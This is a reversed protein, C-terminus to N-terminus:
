HCWMGHVLEISTNILPVMFPCRINAQQQQTATKCDEYSGNWLQNTQINWTTPTEFVFIGGFNAIATLKELWEDINDRSSSLKPIDMSHTIKYIDYEVRKLSNFSVIRDRVERPLRSWNTWGGASYDRTECGDKKGDSTFFVSQTWMSEILDVSIPKNEREELPITALQELFWLYSPIDADTLIGTAIAKNSDGQCVDQSSYYLKSYISTYDPDTPQSCGQQTYTNIPYVKCPVGSQKAYRMVLGQKAGNINFHIRSKRAALQWEAETCNITFQLNSQVLISELVREPPFDPAATFVNVINTNPFWTNFETPSRLTWADPEQGQLSPFGSIFKDMCRIAMERTCGTAIGDKVLQRSICTEYDACLYIILNPQIGLERLNNFHEETPPNSDLIYGQQCDSRSLREAIIYKPNFVNIVPIGFKASLLKAQTTKGTGPAGVILIIPGSPRPVHVKTSILWDSIIQKLEYPREPNYERHQIQPCGSLMMHVQKSQSEQKEYKFGSEHKATLGLVPLKPRDAFLYGAYFGIDHSPNTLDLIACKANLLKTIETKFKEQCGGADTDTDAVHEQRCLRTDLGVSEAAGTILQQYAPSDAHVYKATAIYVQTM